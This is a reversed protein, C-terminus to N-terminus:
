YMWEIRNMTARHTGAVGKPVGTSGSTFIIYAVGGTPRLDPPVGSQNVWPAADPDLLICDMPDPLDDRLTRCTLVVPCRCTRVLLDLRHKPQSTDLPVYPCGAKLAGLLAVIADISRKMYLGVPTEFQV